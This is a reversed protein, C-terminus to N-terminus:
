QYADWDVSKCRPDEWLRKFYDHFANFASTQSIKDTNVLIVQPNEEGLHLGWVTWSWLCVKNNLFMLRFIQWDKEEELPYFRVQINLERDAKVRAIRRLSEKVNKSYSTTDVNNRKALIELLPHDPPSLLM